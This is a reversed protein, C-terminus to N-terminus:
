RIAKIRRILLEPDAGIDLSVKFWSFDLSTKICDPAGASSYWAQELLRSLEILKDNAIDAM